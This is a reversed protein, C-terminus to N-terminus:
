MWGWRGLVDLLAQWCLTRVPHPVTWFVNGSNHILTSLSQMKKYHCALTINIYCCVLIHGQYKSSYLTLSVYHRFILQGLDGSVLPQNYSRLLNTYHILQARTQLMWQGRSHSLFTQKSRSQVLTEGHNLWWETSALPRKLGESTPLPLNLIVWEHCFQMMEWALGKGQMTDYGTQKVSWWEIANPKALPEMLSSSSLLILNRSLPLVLSWSLMSVAPHLGCIQSLSSRYRYLQVVHLCGYKVFIGKNGTQRVYWVSVGINWSSNVWM